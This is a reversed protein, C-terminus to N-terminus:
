KTELIYQRKKCIPCNIIGVVNKISDKLLKRGPGGYPHKMRKEVWFLWVHVKDYAELEEQIEKNMKEILKKEDADVEQVEDPSFIITVGCQICKVSVKM